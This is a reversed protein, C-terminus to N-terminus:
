GHANSLVVETSMHAQISWEVVVSSTLGCCACFVREVVGYIALGLPAM